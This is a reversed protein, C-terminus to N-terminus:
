RFGVSSSSPQELWYVLLCQQLCRLARSPLPIGSKVIGSNRLVIDGISDMCIRANRIVVM